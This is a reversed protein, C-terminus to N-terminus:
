GRGRRATLDTPLPCLLGREQLMQGVREWDNEAADRSVRWTYLAGRIIKIVSVHRRVAEQEPDRILDEPLEIRLGM